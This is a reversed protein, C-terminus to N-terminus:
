EPNIIRIVVDNVEIKRQLISANSQKVQIQYNGVELNQLENEIYRELFVTGAIVLVAVALLVIGAIIFPKSRKM